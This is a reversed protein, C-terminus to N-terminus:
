SIHILKILEKHFIFKIDKFYSDMLILKQSYSNMRNIDMFYSNMLILEQFYSNM